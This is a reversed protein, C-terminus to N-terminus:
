EKNVQEDKGRWLIKRLKKEKVVQVGAQETQVKLAQPRLQHHCCNHELIMPRIGPVKWMCLQGSYYRCDVCRKNVLLLDEKKFYWGHGAECHGDCDHFGNGPEDLRVGINVELTRSGNHWADSRIFCVTGPTSQNPFAQVQGYELSLVPPYTIVPVRDYKTDILHTLSVRDGIKFEVINRISRQSQPHATVLREGPLMQAFYKCGFAGTERVQFLRHGPPRYQSQCYGDLGDLFSAYHSCNGCTIDM